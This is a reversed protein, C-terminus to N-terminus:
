LDLLLVVLTNIEPVQKRADVNRSTIFFLLDRTKYDITDLKHGDFYGNMQTASGCRTIGGGFARFIIPLGAIPSSLIGQTHAVISALRGSLHRRGNGHQDPVKLQPVCMHGFLSFVYVCWCNDIEFIDGEISEVIERESKM